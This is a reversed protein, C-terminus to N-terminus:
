KVFKIIKGSVIYNAEVIEIIADGNQEAAKLRMYNDIENQSLSIGFMGKMADYRGISVSGVGKFSQRPKGTYYLQIQEAKKVTQDDTKVSYNSIGCGLVSLIVLGLCIIKKMRQEKKSFM